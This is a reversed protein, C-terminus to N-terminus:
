TTAPLESQGSVHRALRAMVAATEADIGSPGNRGRRLNVPEEAKYGRRMNGTMSGVAAALRELFSVCWDLLHAAGWTDEPLYITQKVEGTHEEVYERPKGWEGATLRRLQEVVARAQFRARGPASEALATYGRRHKLLHLNAALRAERAGREKAHAGATGGRWTNWARALRLGLGWTWPKVALLARTVEEALHKRKRGRVATLTFLDPPNSEPRPTRYAEDM